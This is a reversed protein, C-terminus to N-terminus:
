VAAAEAAAGASRPRSIPQLFAIHPRCDLYELFAYGRNSLLYGLRPTEGMLEVLRWQMLLLLGNGRVPLNEAIELESMRGRRRLLRCFDGAWKPLADWAPPDSVKHVHLLHPSKPRRVQIDLENSM